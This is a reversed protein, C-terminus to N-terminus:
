PKLPVIKAQSRSVGRGAAVGDGLVAPPNSPNLVQEDPIIDTKGIVVSGGQGLIIKGPPHGFGM